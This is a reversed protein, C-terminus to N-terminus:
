PLTVYYIFTDMTAGGWGGSDSISVVVPSNSYFSADTINAIISDVEAFNNAAPPNTNLSMGTGFIIQIGAGNLTGGATERLVIHIPISKAPFTLATANDATQGIKSVVQLQGGSSPPIAAIQTDTYAESAALVTDAYTKTAKQTAYKTDSNESLTGDTDKVSLAIQDPTYNKPFGSGDGLPIKDTIVLVTKNTSADITTGM